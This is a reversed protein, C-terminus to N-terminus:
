IRNPQSELEAIREELRKIEKKLQEIIENKSQIYEKVISMPAIEGSLMKKQYALATQEYMRRGTHLYDLGELGEPPQPKLMEGEGTLLWDPSIDKCKAYILEVDFTGRNLWSSIGQPSMGLLRAFEAHNGQSYHQILAKLQLKKDEKTM